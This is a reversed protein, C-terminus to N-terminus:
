PTAEIPQALLAYRQGPMIQRLQAHLEAESPAAVVLVPLIGRAVRDARFLAPAARWFYLAMLLQLAVGWVLGLLASLISLGFWLVWPVWLRQQLLHLPALLAMLPPRLPYMDYRAVGDSFVLWNAHRAPNQAAGAHPLAVVPGRAWHGLKAATSLVSWHRGDRQFGLLVPRLGHPDCCAVLSRSQGDFPQGNILELRDGKRLGLVRGAANVSMLVLTGGQPGSPAASPTTSPQTDM